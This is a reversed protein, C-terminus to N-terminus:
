PLQEFNFQNLTVMGKSQITIRYVDEPESNAARFTLEVHRFATFVVYSIEPKLSIIKIADRNRACSDQECFTVELGAHVM